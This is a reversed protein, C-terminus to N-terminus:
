DILKNIIDQINGQAIPLCLDVKTSFHRLPYVNMGNSIRNVGIYRYGDNLSATLFRRLRESKGQEIGSLCSNKNRLKTKTMAAAFLNLMKYANEKKDKLEQARISLKLPKDTRPIENADWVLKPWPTIKGNNFADKNKLNPERFYAKEEINQAAPTSLKLATNVKGDNSTFYVCSKTLRSLDPHVYALLLNGELMTYTPHQLRHCIEDWKEKAQKISLSTAMWSTRHGEFRSMAGIQNTRGKRASDWVSVIDTEWNDFDWKNSQSTVDVLIAIDNAVSCYIYQSSGSTSSQMYRLIRLEEELPSMKKEWLVQEESKVNLRSVFSDAWNDNDTTTKRAEQRQKFVAIKATKYEEYRRVIDSLQTEAFMKQKALANDFDLPVFNTDIEYKNATLKGGFFSDTNNGYNITKEGVLRGKIDLISTEIDYFGSEKEKKTIVNYDAFVESYFEEQIKCPLIAIRGSVRNAIGLITPNNACVPNNSAMIEKYSIPNKPIPLWMDECEEKHSPMWLNSVILDGYKNQFDPYDLMADNQKQNSSTNADLSKMKRKLMMMMRQEAPIASSIYEYVPPLNPLQGTRNIRGRKQVETNIDLEPQAIIMVRQKVEEIPVKATPVAHCSAGTAGTQNIIMVDIENDQFRAFTAAVNSKPRSEVVARNVNESTYRLRTQRGTCEGVKIGEREILYTMYDIPSMPLNVNLTAIDEDVEEYLSLADEGAYQRCSMKTRFVFPKRKEPDDSLIGKETLEVGDRGSLLRIVKGDYTEIRVHAWLLTRQVDRLTDKFGGDIVDGNACPEGQANRARKIQSEKTKSICVVVKKGERVHKLTLEAISKTKIALLLSEIVIFLSELPSVPSLSFYTNERDRDTIKDGLGLSEFLKSIVQEGSVAMMDKMSRISFATKQCRVMKRMIATVIDSNDTDVASSNPVGYMESGQKDLTIYRVVINSVDRERRIMQGNEVLFNSVLEQLPVGGREIAFTLEDADLGTRAIATKTAYLAMNEPRKAFTASLFLVGYSEQLLRQFFKGTNSKAGSATHAEDLIFVCKRNKNLEALWEAKNSRTISNFQSYTTMIYDYEKPLGVSKSLNKTDASQYIVQYANTQAKLLRKEYDADSEGDQQTPEDYDARQQSFDVVSAGSNLIFPKAAAIGLAKCDRYIDSFLNARQTVFIPLYGQKIAYRIVAAAQRGKGVGTQDGIICGEHRAEINYIALAVGDIQEAKLADYLENSNMKLKACVFGSVDGGIAATLNTLATRMGLDMSDPIITNLTPYENAPKYPGNLTSQCSPIIADIDSTHRFRYQWDNPLKGDPMIRVYCISQVNLNIDTTCDVCFYETRADGKFTFRKQLIEIQKM